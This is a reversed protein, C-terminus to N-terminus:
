NRQSYSVSMHKPHCDFTEGEGDDYWKTMDSLMRTAAYCGITSFFLGGLMPYTKIIWVVEFFTIFSIILLSFAVPPVLDGKLYQFVM